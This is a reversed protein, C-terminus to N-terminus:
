KSPQNGTPLQWALSLIASGTFLMNIGFLLGLAWVASEPWGSWLIAALILSLLGNLLLLWWNQFRKLSFSWIIQYIGTVLFYAILIITLSVVGVVPYAVLMIGLIINVLAALFGWIYGEQHREQWSRFLQYGGGIILLWGLLLEVTLSFIGPVILAAIGILILLIGEIIYLTRNQPVIM